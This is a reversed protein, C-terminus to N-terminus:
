MGLYTDPMPFQVQVNPVPIIDAIRLEKKHLGFCTHDTVLRHWWDSYCNNFHEAV